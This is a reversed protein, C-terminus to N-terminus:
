EEFKKKTIYADQRKGSTGIKFFPVEGQSTTEAKMIRKCMSVKGIDGLLVTRGYRLLIDRYYEYQKKRATLEATLEAALEATLETFNDLIRVIEAQVPLPPFPM